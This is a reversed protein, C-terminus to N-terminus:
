MGEQSKLLSTLFGGPDFFGNEKLAEYTAVMVVDGSQHGVASVSNPIGLCNEYAIELCKKLRKKRASYSKSWRKIKKVEHWGRRTLIAKGEKLKPRAKATQRAEKGGTKGKSAKADAPRFHHAELGGRVRLIIRM